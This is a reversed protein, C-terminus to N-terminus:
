ASNSVTSTRMVMCDSLADVRNTGSRKVDSEVGMDM